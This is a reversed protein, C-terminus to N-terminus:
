SSPTLTAAAAPLASVPAQAVLPSGACTGSGYFACWAVRPQGTGDTLGSDWNSEGQWQYWFLHTIPVATGAAPLDFFGTASAAQRTVQGNVCAGLTGAADSGAAPCGGAVTRDTLLTGAETIWLDRAAGGSDTALAQDFQQLHTAVPAAYSSTVDGYDHVSWTTPFAAGPSQAALLAAYPKLYSVSPHTFVGAIVTDAGHDAFHRIERSAILYDCAAKAAGALQSDPTVACSEDTSDPNGNDVAFGDPENVAEWIHPRDVAPLKSAANLAGQVGCYYEWWGAVTTPDPIPQDWSPIANPSAYGAISVVPTLGDRHAAQLGADLDDWGEARRHLRGAGDTWAQQAVRSLTCGPSTASGNYEEIADYAVFLRVETVPHQSPPATLARFPSDGYYGRLTASPCVGPAGGPACQAFTGPADGLGYTVAGASAPLTLCTCVSLLLLARRFTRATRERPNAQGRGRGCM